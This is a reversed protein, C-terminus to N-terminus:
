NKCLRERTLHEEFRELYSMSKVSGYYEQETPLYTIRYLQASDKFIEDKVKKM